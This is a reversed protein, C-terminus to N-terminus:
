LKKKKKHKLIIVIIFVILALFGISLITLFISGILSMREIKIDYNNENGDKDIIVLEYNNNGVKLNTNSVEKNNKMVKLTSNLDSLIYDYDFKSTWYFVFTSGKKDEFQITSDNIKFERIVVNSQIVKRKINLEYVKENGNEATVIIKIKNINNKSLDDINGEIKYKSKVDNLVVYISISKKNVEYEMIDSINTIIDDEIKISKISVDSSKVVEQANIIPNNKISNSYNNSGSTQGATGQNRNYGECPDSYIADGDAYYNNGNTVAVHWHIGGHGDSHMGYTVGNPCTKISNKRLGGGTANVTLPLILLMCIGLTLIRKM